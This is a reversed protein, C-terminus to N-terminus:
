GSQIDSKRWKNTYVIEFDM